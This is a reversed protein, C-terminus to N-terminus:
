HISSGVSRSPAFGSAPLRGFMMLLEHPVVAGDFSGNMSSTVLAQVADPIKPMHDLPLLPGFQWVLPEGPLRTLLKEAPAYSMLLLTPLKEDRPAPWFPSILGFM